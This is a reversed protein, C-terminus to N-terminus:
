QTKIMKLYTFVHNLYAMIGVTGNKNIILDAANFMSGAGCKFPASLGGAVATAFLESESSTNIVLDFKKRKIEAQISNKPLNLLSTDKKSFCQWDAYSANKSKLEIYFVDIFKKTNELFKDMESKNINDQENLILAIKEVKEWPLFQKKRGSNERGIKSKLYIKAIWQLM